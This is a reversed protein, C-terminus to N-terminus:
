RQHEPDFRRLFQVLEHVNTSPNRREEGLKRNQMELRLANQLADNLKSKLKEFPKGDAKDYRCEMLKSVERFIEQRGIATDRLHYHLLYWLEFCENSWCATIEPHSGCLEFARGFQQASAEDRDFVIWIRQYPEKWKIAKNKYTVAERALRDTSMGTGVCTIEVQQKDFPFSALYDRSSKGDECLILVRRVTRKRLEKRGTNWPKGM